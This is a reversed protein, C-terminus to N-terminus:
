RSVETVGKNMFALITGAKGMFLCSVGFAPVRNGEEKVEGLPSLDSRLRLSAIRSLPIVVRSLR